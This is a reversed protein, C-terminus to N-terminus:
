TLEITTFLNKINFFVFMLPIYICIFVVKRQLYYKSFYLVDIKGRIQTFFEDSLILLIMTVMLLFLYSKRSNSNILFIGMISCAVMLISQITGLGGTFLYLAIILVYFVYALIQYLFLQKLPKFHYTIRLVSFLFIATFSVLTSVDFTYFYFDFFILVFAVVMGGSTAVLFINREIDYENHEQQKSSNM